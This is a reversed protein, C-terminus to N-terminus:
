RGGWGPGSGPRSTASLVSLAHAMEPPVQPPLQPPQPRRRGAVWGPRNIRVPQKLRMNDTAAISAVEVLQAALELEQPWPQARQEATTRLLSDPPLRDLLM